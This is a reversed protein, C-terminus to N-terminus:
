TKKRRLFLYVIFSGIVGFVGGLWIWLKANKWKTIDYTVICRIAEYSCFMAIPFFIYTVPPSLNVITLM